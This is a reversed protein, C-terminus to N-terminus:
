PCITDPGHIVPPPPAIQYPQNTVWPGGYAGIDCRIGGKAPPQYADYYWAEPDGDDIGSSGDALQYLNQQSSVFSPAQEIMNYFTWYGGSTLQMYNQVYSYGINFYTDNTVDKFEPNSHANYLISNTVNTECWNKQVITAPATNDTVTTNNLSITSSNGVIIGDESGGNVKNDYILTNFLLICSYGYNITEDPGIIARNSNNNAIIVNLTEIVSNELKIVAQNGDKGGTIKIGYLSFSTNNLSVVTGNGGGDIIVSDPYNCNGTIRIYRTYYPSNSTINLCETYTGDEVKIFTFGVNASSVDIAKQITRFPLKQTGPNSDNGTTSVYFDFGSRPPSTATNTSVTGLSNLLATAVPDGMESLHMYQYDRMAEYQQWLQNRNSRASNNIAQFLKRDYEMRTEIRRQIMPDNIPQGYIHQAVFVLFVALRLGNVIKSQYNKIFNM